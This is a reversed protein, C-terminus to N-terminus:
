NGKSYNAHSSLSQQSSRTPQIKASASYMKATSNQQLSPTIASLHFGNSTVPSSSISVINATSTFPKTLTVTNFHFDDTVENVTGSVSFTADKASTYKSTLVSTSSVDMPTENSTDSSKGSYMKATTMTIQQLLPTTKSLYFGNSSAPSSSITVVETSTFNKTFTVTDFYFDDTITSVTGSTSVTFSSMKVDKTLTYKSTVLTSLFDTTRANSSTINIDDDKSKLPCIFPSGGNTDTFNRFTFNVVTPLRLSRITFANTISSASDIQQTTTKLRSM